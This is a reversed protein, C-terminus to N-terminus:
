FLSDYMDYNPKENYKLNYVHKFYTMLSELFCKYTVDIENTKSNILDLISELSKATEYEEHTLTKGAWPLDIKCIVLFVFGISIMDDRRYPNYGAHVFPSAYKPTGSFSSWMTESCHTGDDNTFLYAMGYDILAICGDYTVMFNDPKIDCHVIATKHIHRVCQIIQKFVNAPRSGSSPDRLYTILSQPYYTCTLCLLDGYRGYWYLTPVIQKYEITLVSNLYSLIKSEHKVSNASNMNVMKIAVTKNSLIHLAKYVNAFGGQGIKEIIKYNHIVITNSTM